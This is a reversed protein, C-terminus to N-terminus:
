DAQELGEGAQDPLNSSSLQILLGDNLDTRKEM